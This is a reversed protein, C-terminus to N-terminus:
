WRASAGGADSEATDPAALEDPSKRPGGLWQDEAGQAGPTLREGRVLSPLLALLGIVLFLGVPVGVMLWLVHATTVPPNDPWGEAVDASAVGTSLALLAAAGGAVTLLRRAGPRRTRRRAPHNTVTGTM